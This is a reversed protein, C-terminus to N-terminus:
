LTEGQKFYNEIVVGLDLANIRKDRTLDSAATTDAQPSYEEIVKGLDLTNIVNDNNIDGGVLPTSSFDLNPATSGVTFTFRKALFQHRKVIMAYEGPVLVTQLTGTYTNGTGPVLTVTKSVDTNTQINRITVTSNLLDQSESLYPLTLKLTVATETKQVSLLPDASRVTNGGALTANFYYEPSNCLGNCDNQWEAIWTTTATSGSVVAAAPQTSADEDLGGELLSDNERVKFTVQKGFCNFGGTNATLTVLTGEDVSSLSWKASTISCPIETVVTPAITNTATPPVPTSVATTPTATPVTTGTVTYTASGLGGSAITNGTGTGYVITTAPDFSVISTGAAKARWTITALTGTGSKANASDTYFSYLVKGTTNDINKTVEQAGTLFGGLTINTVEIVAPNFSLILDANTVLNQTNIIINTTNSTGTSKSATAPNFALTTTPDTQGGIPPTTPTPSTTTVTPTPTALPTGTTGSEYMGIDPGNGKYPWASDANNIGDIVLGKDILTSTSLLRLDNSAPSVFGNVRDTVMDFNYGNKEQGIGQASINDGYGNVQQIITQFKTFTNSNNTNGDWKAFRTPDTTFLNDYDFTNTAGGDTLEIVYRNAQM